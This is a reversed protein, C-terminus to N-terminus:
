MRAAQLVELLAQAQRLAPRSRTPTRLRVQLRVRQRNLHVQPRDLDQPPARNQTQFTILPDAVVILCLGAKGRTTPSHSTTSSSPPSEPSPTVSIFATSHPDPLDFYHTDAKTCCNWSGLRDDTGHAIRRFPSLISVIATVAGIRIIAGCSPKTAGAMGDNASDVCTLTEGFTRHRCTIFASGLAPIRRGAAIRVRTGSTIIRMRWTASGM